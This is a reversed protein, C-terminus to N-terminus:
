QMGGGAVVPKIAQIDHVRVIHAGALLSRPRRRPPWRRRGNPRNRWFLSGRPGVLIPLEPPWVRFSRWFRRTRSAASESASGPDVVIRARTSEPNRARHVAPGSTRPSREPVNRSRRCNPGREPTGRMHNLILGADSQAVTRAMRPRLHARESRQHHRCGLELAQPSAPSTHIWRCPVTVRDRLGEARSDSPPTGRGESIRQSGAPHIRGSISLTRGEDELEMARVYARDPDDTAAAMPFSDPTVNLIGM